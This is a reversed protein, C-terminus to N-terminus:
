PGNLRVGFPMVEARRLLQLAIERLHALDPQVDQANIM